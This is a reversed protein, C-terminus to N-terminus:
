SLTNLIRGILQRVPAPLSKFVTDTNRELDDLLDKEFHEEFIARHNSIAERLRSMSVMADGTNYEMASKDMVSDIASPFSVGYRHHFSKNMDIGELIIAVDRPRLSASKSLLSLYPRPSSKKANSYAIRARMAMKFLPSYSQNTYQFIPSDSPIKVDLIDAKKIINDAFSFAYKSLLKSSMKPFRNIAKEVQQKTRLPFKRVSVGNITEDIGWSAEKAENPAQVDDTKKEDKIDAMGSLMQMMDESVHYYNGDDIAGKAIAKVDDDCDMAYRDCAAVIRIAAMRKAADPLKHKNKKFANMSFTVNTKSNLPFKRLKDGNKFVLILGFDRDIQRYIDEQTHVSEKNDLAVKEMDESTVQKASLMDYADLIIGRVNM